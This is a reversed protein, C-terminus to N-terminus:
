PQGPKLKLFLASAETLVKEGDFLTADVIIKRGQQSRLRAVVDLQRQVPVIARYDIHLYATRQTFEGSLVAATYGLVSDFLLGLAGGHAAGNRGLHYRDFRVWGSVTDSDTKTLEAPVALINGRNPLDYRRGSPSAWEDAYYPELLDSVQQLLDAAATIVHDPADAARAHDQVTRVAALFRGYDPGGKATAEPMNFGGGAHEAASDTTVTM